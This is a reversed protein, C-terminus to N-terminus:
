VEDDRLLRWSTNEYHMALEACIDERYTYNSYLEDEIEDLEEATFNEQAPAIIALELDTDQAGVSYELEILVDEYKGVNMRINYVVNNSPNVELIM